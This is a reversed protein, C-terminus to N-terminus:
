CLFRTDEGNTPIALPAAIEDYPLEEYFALRLVERHDDSLLALARLMERASSGRDVTQAANESADEVDEAADLPVTEHAIKRIADLAKHRVIRFIWISARSSQAFGSAGRWVATMTDIVVDEALTESRVFTRVYRYVRCEFREYLLQFAHRDGAASASLLDADTQSDPLLSSRNM